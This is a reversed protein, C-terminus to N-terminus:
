EILGRGEKEIKNESILQKLLQDLVGNIFEKSKDTSYLKSLEVYENLTAKPPITPFYLFEALAMQILALDIAAIRDAEWNVLRPRVLDMLDGENSITQKLLAYGFELTTKDEESWELQMETLDPLSKLLKKTAGVILTKDEPWFPSITEMMEEFLELNIFHKYMQLLMQADDQAVQNELPTTAYAQYTDFKTVEQYLPELEFHPLRGLIAYKDYARLLPRHSVLLTTIPNSFLRYTFARDYDGPLHKNNRQNYEKRALRSVDVLIALGLLYQELIKRNNVEYQRLAASAQFDEDRGLAYLLQMVKIRVSRRSIMYKKEGWQTLTAFTIDFKVILWNISL